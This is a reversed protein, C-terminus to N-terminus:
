WRTVFPKNGAHTSTHGVCALIKPSVLLLALGSASKLRMFLSCTSLGESFVSGLTWYEFRSPSTLYHVRHSLGHQPQERLGGAEDVRVFGLSRPAQEDDHIRVERPEDRTREDERREHLYEVDLFQLRDIPQGHQRREGEHEDRRERQQQVEPMGLPRVLYEERRVQCRRHRHEPEHVCPIQHHHEEQLDPEGVPPLEDDPRLTFAGGHLHDVPHEGQEGRVRALFGRLEVLLRDLHDGDDANWGGEQEVPVDPEDESGDLRIRPPARHQHRDHEEERRDHRPDREDGQQVHHQRREAAHLDAHGAEVLHRRIEEVGHDEVERELEQIEDVAQVLAFLRDLDQRFEHHVPEEYTETHDLHQEPHEHREADHDHDPHQPQVFFEPLQEVEDRHNEDLEANEGRPPVHHDSPLHERLAEASQHLVFDLYAAHVSEQQRENQQGHREDYQCHQDLHQRRPIAGLAKM